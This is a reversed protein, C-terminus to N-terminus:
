LLTSWLTPATGRKTPAPDGDLVIDGPGLGVETGFPIRIWGTTQNYYAHASFHFTATSRETPSSTGWRVCHPRPRPRGGYWTEDQDMWGNPWLVGLNCISLVSLCSLCRDPSLLM